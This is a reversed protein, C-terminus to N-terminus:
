PRYARGATSDWTNRASDLLQRLQLLAGTPSDPQAQFIWACGGHWPALKYNSFAIPTWLPTIGYLPKTLASAEEILSLAIPEQECPLLGSEEPNTCLEKLQKCYAARAFYTEENENPGPIIGQRNLDLLETDSINM